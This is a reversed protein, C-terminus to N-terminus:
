TPLPIDAILGDYALTTAPFIARADSLLTEPRAHRASIHTLYLHGVQARQALQAAQTSLSHGYREALAEEGKGYTSEHVLVDAHRCFDAHEAAYTCDGFIAIDRGRQSPTLYDQGHLIRGDALTISGGQKLLALHAGATIGQAQLAKIDLHGPRDAERIRYAYSPLTHPLTRYTVRTKHDAFATGSDDLEIIDFPYTLHSATLYLVTRVLQMLGKPGYLTLPNKSGQMARSSLLGPLGFTHDGHLHTIFIKSIKGPRIRSHLIAHQTAEGCDFLWIDGREAMLDLALASVNRTKSPLGAGTGLFHLQM